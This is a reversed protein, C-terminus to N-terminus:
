CGPDTGEVGSIGELQESGHKIHSRMTQSWIWTRELLQENMQAGKMWRLATSVPWLAFLASDVSWGRSTSLLLCLFPISVHTHSHARVHSYKCSPQQCPLIMLLSCSNSVWGLTPILATPVYSFSPSEAQGHSPHLTVISSHSLCTRKSLYPSEWGPFKFMKNLM